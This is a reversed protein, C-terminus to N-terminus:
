LLEVISAVLQESEFPIPFFAEIGFGELEREFEETRYGSMVVVKLGRHRRKIEPVVTLIDTPSLSNNTLVVNHYDTRSLEDYVEGLRGYSEVVNVDVGADALLEPLLSGLEDKAAVLLLRRRLKQHPKGTM